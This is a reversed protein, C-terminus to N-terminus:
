YSLIRYGEGSGIVKICLSLRIIRFIHRCVLFLSERDLYEVNLASCVSACVSLCLSLHSLVYERTCTVVSM